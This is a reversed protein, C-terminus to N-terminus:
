RLLRINTGPPLFIFLVTFDFRQLIILFTAIYLALAFQMPNIYLALFGVHKIFFM